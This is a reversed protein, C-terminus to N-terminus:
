GVFEFDTKVARKMARALRAVPRRGYLMKQEGKEVGRPHALHQPGAAGARYFNCLFELVVNLVRRRTPFLVVLALNLGRDAELPHQLPHHIVHLPAASLLHTDAVHQHRNEALLLAVDHGQQVLMM